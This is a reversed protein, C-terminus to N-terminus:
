EATSLSELCTKLQMTPAIDYIIERRARCKKCKCYDSYKACWKLEIEGM